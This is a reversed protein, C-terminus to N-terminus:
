RSKEQSAPVGAGVRRFTLEAGESRTGDLGAMALMSHDQSISLRVPEDFRRGSVREARQVMRSNGLEAPDKGAVKTATLVIQGAEIVWTGEVPVMMANLKFTKDPKLELTVGALQDAVAGIMARETPSAGARSIDVSGNWMGLVEHELSNACGYLATALAYLAFFRFALRNM